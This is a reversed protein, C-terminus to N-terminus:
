EVRHPRRGSFSVRREQHRNAQKTVLTALKFAPCAAFIPLVMATHLQLAVSKVCRTRISRLNVRQTVGRWSPYFGGTIGRWECEWVYM